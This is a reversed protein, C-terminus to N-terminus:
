GGEDANMVHVEGRSLFAIKRGDPSWAPSGDRAPDRTLRRLESGDANVVYIEANGDRTSRFAIRRGDPSWAPEGAYATSRTLNRQETGEANMVYVDTFTVFAITRGDPSWAPATRRVNHTLRRRDSGDANMVYVNWDGRPKGLFAIRHGDPSWAPSPPRTFCCIAGQRQFAPGMGRTLRRQGSGDANLVYVDSNHDRSGIFAIKRGDPSWAPNEDLLGNRTLNRQGSGDANMVYVEANRDRDSEFVIKRGDPSWGPAFDAAPNRTLNRRGSGDANTVYIERNGDRGSVFAIKRGDPSWALVHVAPPPAPVNSRILDLLRGGLGLAPTVLLGGVLIVAALAVLRWRRRGQPAGSRSLVDDWDASVVPAPFIREFSEAVALEVDTM